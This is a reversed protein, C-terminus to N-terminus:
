TDFSNVYNGFLPRFVPCFQPQKISGPVKLANFLSLSLRCYGWTPFLFAKHTAWQRAKNGTNTFDLPTPLFSLIASRGVFNCCKRFIFIQKWHYKKITACSNSRLFGRVFLNRRWAAAIEFDSLLCRLWFSPYFFFFFSFFFFTLFLLLLDVVAGGRLLYRIRSLLLLGYVGCKSRPKKQPFAKPVEM